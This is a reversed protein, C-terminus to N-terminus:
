NSSLSSGPHYNNVYYHYLGYKLRHDYVTLMKAPCDIKELLKPASKEVAQPSSKRKGLRDIRKHVEKLFKRQDRIDDASVLGSRSSFIKYDKYPATLLLDLADMWSPIDANALFPPQNAVVADGIFVIKEEPLIIWLAGAEPGPHNEVIVERDESLMMARQSFTVDPPHWRIGSLGSCFEWESGSEANQAKFVSTRQRFLKATEDHAISTCELARAGLTRDPHSDLNVLILRDSNGIAQLEALWTRGDEPRLPADIMLIGDTLVVAGLYVGPYTKEIYVGSEIEKM